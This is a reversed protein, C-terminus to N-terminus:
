FMLVILVALILMNGFDAVSTTIPILFNHPDEKKKYIYFGAALAVLFVLSVLLLVDLLIILLVKFAFYATIRTSFSSIALAIGAGLLATILAIICIQLFLKKLKEDKWGRIKREHLMSSFRSSVITGYGGIMDNLLPLLIVFPLISVFIPKIQELALGGFASILSALLLVKLSEKIIVKPVNSHPGYEKIYFLTKRSLNYKRHIKHILPHYGKRKVAQLKRLHKKLSKM